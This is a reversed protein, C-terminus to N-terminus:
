CRVHRILVIATSFNNFYLKENLLVRRHKMGEGRSVGQKFQYREREIM